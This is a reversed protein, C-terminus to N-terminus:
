SLEPDAPPLRALGLVRAAREPEIRYPVHGEFFCARRILSITMESGTLQMQDGPLQAEQGLRGSRVTFDRNTSHIPFTHLPDEQYGLFGQVTFELPNEAEGEYALEARRTAIELMRETRWARVEESLADDRSAPERESPRLSLEFDHREFLLTLRDAIAHRSVGLERLRRADEWVVQGLRDQPALFGTQSHGGPRLETEIEAIPRGLYAEFARDIDEPALGSLDAPLLDPLPRGATWRRFADLMEPAVELEAVANEGARKCFYKAASISRAKAMSGIANRHCSNAAAWIQLGQVPVLAAMTDNFPGPQTGSRQDKEVPVETTLFVSLDSPTDYENRAVKAMEAIGALLRQEFIGPHAAVFDALSEDDDRAADTRQDTHINRLTRIIFHAWADDLTLLERAM